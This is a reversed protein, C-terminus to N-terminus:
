SLQGEVTKWYCNVECYNMCWLGALLTHRPRQTIIRPNFWNNFFLGHIIECQFAYDEDQYNTSKNDSDTIYAAAERLFSYEFLEVCIPPM